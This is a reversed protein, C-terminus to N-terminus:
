AALRMPATAMDQDTRAASDAGETGGSFRSTGALAVVELLLWALLLGFSAVPAAVTLGTGAALAVPKGFGFVMLSVVALAYLGLGAARHPQRQAIRKLSLSFVPWFLLFLLGTLLLNLNAAGFELGTAALWVLAGTSFGVGAVLAAYIRRTYLRDIRMARVSGIERHGVHCDELTQYVVGQAAALRNM